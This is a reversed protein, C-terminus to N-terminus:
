SFAALARSSELGPRADVHAPLHIIRYLVAVARDTATGPRYFLDGAVRRRATSHQSPNRLAELLARTAQRADSVVHSASRLRQVKDASIGARAILEARDIAVIPRDLLMYEFAISSHDSVMGDSIALFPCADAERIVRVRPHSDYRALRRTWDIGGSGRLGRDYSRDHLKILVQLGEATLREVIEEGMSNLSSYPSWTPAYIVTPVAPDLALERRIAARDISGDVLCDVKPYGTLAARSEDDPLLGAEVYRRRRDDNPFMVCDFAAVSPALDVPADLGYKGAVGHFLHIRRTRRRLWTMDWLDTNVYADVKMWAAQTPPVINGTIGAPAFVDNAPWVSGSPTTFWLELRPDRRLREYLPRFVTVSMPSVAEFMVRKRDNGGSSLAEDLRHLGAIMRRRSRRYFTDHVLSPTSDARPLAAAAPLPDAASQGVLRRGRARWRDNAFTSLYLVLTRPRWPEYALAARFQERAGLRDGAQLRDDGWDRHLVHRRAADCRAPAARHRACAQACLDRHKELVLAQAAYTRDIQRSMLGGPRYRALPEPLYGLPYRAAIRLWLDWDEVHIERREDFGGVEELVHRPVMVTLTNISFRTHFLDCFAATPPGPAETRARAHGVVGTHLLGTEPYQQFYSVQRAIKDPLWEDDADLFAVFQGTASAIGTNRARAPGGNPQRLCCIRGEWPALAAKLAQQDESGDDVVIVEINGYTQAFASRVAHSVLAAANFVPVIVSVRFEAMSRDTQSRGATGTLGAAGRLRVNLL